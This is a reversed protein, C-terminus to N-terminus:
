CWCNRLLSCLFNWLWCSSNLYYVSWLPMAYCLLCCWTGHACMPYILVLKYRNHLCWLLPISLVIFSFDHFSEALLLLLSSELMTVCLTNSWIKNCYLTILRLHLFSLHFCCSISCCIMVAFSPDCLRSKPLITLQSRHIYLRLLMASDKRQFTLWAALQM